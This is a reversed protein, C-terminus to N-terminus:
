GDTSRQDTGSLDLAAIEDFTAAIARIGREYNDLLFWENPSHAHDDPQTFGEFVVPLGLIADFSSAIPIGGGERFFVPARGFAAEMARAAAQTVPHDIPTLFPRGKGILHVRVEVGPPAVEAVFAEFKAYIDAADQSPVLRCSVKAHAQAPIITKSGPGQFGGWIGNVDLTPRISRRELTTYGVEGVLAPVGIAAQYAREDFPLEAMAAREDASLEAVDDYFGPIRIRGDPGKLASIIQALAIAPNHVAGGYTGSHLDGSTLVVDIQAYMMGRLGVTFAPLNGDLFGTDSIIAADAALRERNASLWGDLHESSSEEEGEFVYRVNIPLRGRTALLARAASLHAHIQGKDDATGRGILRDGDIRPEFPPTTWEDLPDVPQVDYHGYVIVTPADAAHLWDGYVIPHGGTDSVEAHEIGVATLAAALWEGARLVDAAHEPLASISPIRLFAELEAMRADRNAVLYADITPDLVAPPSRDPM